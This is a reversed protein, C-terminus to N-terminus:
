DEAVAPVIGRRVLGTVFRKEVGAEKGRRTITLSLTDGVSVIGCNYPSHARPTLLFDLRVLERRVADPFSVQGLNSVTICSSHGGCVAFGARLAACKMWLPLAATRRALETHAALTARLCPLTSQARLQAAMSEAQERFPVGAAEPTLKPLAYLSFNRLSASPFKKRLDIPVMVQVPQLPRDPTVQARQLEMATRAFLAAFFATLTVNGTKERLAAVSVTLTTRHIASEQPAPPLLYSAGGPMRTPRDGAYRFVSDEWAQREPVPEWPAGLYEALLAQLFQLGGAGDTLAHFFEVAIHHPGYRVRMACSAIEKMSMFALPQEDVRIDLQEPCPVVAYGNKQKRIGAALMPFHVAVADAAQQLKVPRIASVTHAELRFVNSHQETHVALHLLASNDVPHPERNNNM